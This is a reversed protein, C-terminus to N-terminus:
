GREGGALLNPHIVGVESEPIEAYYDRVSMGALPFTGRIWSRAEVVTTKFGPAPYYPADEAVDVPVLLHVPAVNLLCALTMLEDVSVPRPKKGQKRGSELAYLVVETMEPRGAVACGEALQKLTIGRHQRIQKLRLRVADTPTPNVLESTM